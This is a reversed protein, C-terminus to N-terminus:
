GSAAEASPPSCSTESKLGAPSGGMVGRCISLLERVTACDATEAMLRFRDADMRYYAARDRTSWTVPEHPMPHSQKVAMDPM